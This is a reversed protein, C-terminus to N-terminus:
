RQRFGLFNASAFSKDIVPLENKEKVQLLESALVDSFDKYVKMKAHFIFLWTAFHYNNSGFM